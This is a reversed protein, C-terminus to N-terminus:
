IKGIKIYLYAQERFMGKSKCKDAVVFQNYNDSKQLFEM